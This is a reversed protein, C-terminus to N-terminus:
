FIKAGKRDKDMLRFLNLVHKSSANKEIDRMAELMETEDDALNTDYEKPKYMIVM